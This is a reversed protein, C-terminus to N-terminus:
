ILLFSQQMRLKRVRETLDQVKKKVEEIEQNVSPQFVPQLGYTSLDSRECSNHRSEKFFIKTQYMARSFLEVEVMNEHFRCGNFTRFCCLFPM